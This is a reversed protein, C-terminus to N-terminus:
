SGLCSAKSYQEEEQGAHKHAVKLFSPVQEVESAKDSLVTRVSLLIGLYDPVFLFSLEGFM